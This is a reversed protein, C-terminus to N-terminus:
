AAHGEHQADRVHRGEELAAERARHRPGRPWCAAATTAIVHRRTPEMKAGTNARECDSPCGKYRQNGTDNLRVQRVRYGSVARMRTPLILVERHSM